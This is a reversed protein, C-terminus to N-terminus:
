PHQDFDSDQIESFREPNTKLQAEIEDGLATLAPRPRPDTIIREWAADGNMEPLIAPLHEVLKEREQPPLARIAAEIEKATSM